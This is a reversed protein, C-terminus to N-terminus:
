EWVLRCMGLKDRKMGPPCRQLKWYNNWGVFHKIVRPAAPKINNQAVKQPSLGNVRLFHLWQKTDDADDLRLHHGGAALTVAGCFLLLVLFGTIPSSGSTEM